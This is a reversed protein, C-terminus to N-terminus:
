VQVLEPAVQVAHLVPNVRLLLVQKAQRGAWFGLQMEHEALLVQATQEDPNEGRLPAQIEQELRLQEEQEDVLVQEPQM